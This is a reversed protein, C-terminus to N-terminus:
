TTPTGGSYVCKAYSGITTMECEVDKFLYTYYANVMEYLNDNVMEIVRVLPSLEVLPVAM